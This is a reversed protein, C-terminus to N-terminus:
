LTLKLLLLELILAEQINTELSKITQGVNKLNERAQKETIREAVKETSSQMQPLHAVEPFAGTVKTLWVDRLWLEVAGVMASRQRRYESAISAQLEKEWREKQKEEADPYHSLPSKEKLEAEITSQMEDLKSIMPALLTYRSVIGETSSAATQVFVDLWEQIDSEIIPRNIGEFVFHRCRSLITPLIKQADQTLLIFLKGPFPEELTKLFANAAQINLRDAGCLIAIEYSGSLSKLQFSSILQRIQDTTIIRIKSEPYIWRVNPDKREAIMTCSRCVGCADTNLGSTQSRSPPNECHLTQALATAMAEMEGLDPGIFLSAHALRGSELSRQLTEAVIKQNQFSSLM